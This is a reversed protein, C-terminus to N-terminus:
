AAGSDNNLVGCDKEDKADARSASLGHPAKLFVVYSRLERLGSKRTGCNAKYEYRNLLKKFSTASHMM